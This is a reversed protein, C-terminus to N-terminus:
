MGGAVGGREGAWGCMGELKKSLMNASGFRSHTAQEPVRRWAARRRTDSSAAALVAAWAAREGARLGL